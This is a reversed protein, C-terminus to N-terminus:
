GDMPGIEIKGNKVYYHFTQIHDGMAWCSLNIIDGKGDSIDSYDDWVVKGPKSTNDLLDEYIGATKAAKICNNRVSKYNKTYKETSSNISPLDFTKHRSSVSMNHEVGDFDLNKDFSLHNTSYNGLKSLLYSYEDVKFGYKEAEDITKKEEETYKIYKRYKDVSKPDRFLDERIKRKKNESLEKGVPKEKKKVVKDHKADSLPYPPGNKVGWRQGQIGHHELFPEDSVWGYHQLYYRSM